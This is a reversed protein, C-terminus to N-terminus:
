AGRLIKERQDLIEKCLAVLRRIENLDSLELNKNAISRLKDAIDSYEQDLTLVRLLVEEQIQEEQFVASYGRKSSVCISEVLICESELRSLEGVADLDGNSLCIRKFKELSQQAGRLEDAMIKRLLTDNARLSEKEAYAKYGPVLRSLKSFVAQVKSHAQSM